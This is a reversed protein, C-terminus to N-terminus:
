QKPAPPHEPAPPFGLNGAVTGLMELLDVRQDDGLGQCIRPEHEWAPEGARRVLTRGSDTFALAWSRRDDPHPRPGLRRYGPQGSRMGAVPAMVKQTGIETKAERAETGSVSM